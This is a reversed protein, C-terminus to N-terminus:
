VFSFIDNISRLVIKRENDKDNKYTIEYRITPLNLFFETLQKYADSPLDDLWARTDELKESKVDYVKEGDYIKDLSALTVKEFSDAQNLKTFDIQDYISIPPYSLHISITDTIKIVKLDKEPWEITIKSFDVVFSRVKEDETDSFSLTHPSTTSNGYLQTYLYELDFLALNNIAFESSVCNNIIEKVTKLIQAYEGTARAALLLKADKALIPRATIKAKTSPVELTFVRHSLKPLTM